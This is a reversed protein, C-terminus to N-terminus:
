NLVCTKTGHENVHLMVAVVKHGDVARTEASNQGKPPVTISGKWTARPGNGLIPREEDTPLTWTFTCTCTRTSHSFCTIFAQGDKRIGDMCSCDYEDAKTQAQSPVSTFILAALAVLVVKM